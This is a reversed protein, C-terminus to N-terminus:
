IVLQQLYHIINKLERALIKMNLDRWTDKNMIADRSDTWQKITKMGHVDKLIKNM